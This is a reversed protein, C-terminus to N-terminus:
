QAVEDPAAYLGFGHLKDFYQAATHMDDVVHKLSERLLTHPLSNKLTDLDCAMNALAAVDKRLRVLSDAIAPQVARCLRTGPQLSVNM